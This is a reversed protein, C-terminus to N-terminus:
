QPRAAWAQAGETPAPDDPQDGTRCRYKCETPASDYRGDNAPGIGIDCATDGVVAILVGERTRTAKRGDRHLTGSTDEVQRTAGM